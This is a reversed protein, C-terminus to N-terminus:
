APSAVRIQSAGRREALAAAPGLDAEEHRQADDPRHAREVKKRDVVQQAGQGHEVHGVVAPEREPDSETQAQQSREPDVTQRPALVQRSGPDGNPYQSSSKQAPDRNENGPELRQESVLRFPVVARGGPDCRLGVHRDVLRAALPLNPRCQREQRAVVAQGGALQKRQSYQGQQCRPM